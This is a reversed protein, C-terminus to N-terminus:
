QVCLLRHCPVELQCGVDGRGGKPESPGCSEQDFPRHLAVWQQYLAKALNSGPASSSIAQAVDLASRLPLRLRVLLQGDCPVPELADMLPALRPFAELLQAHVRPRNEGFWSQLAAEAKEERQAVIVNAQRLSARAIRLVESFSTEAGATARIAHSIAAEM